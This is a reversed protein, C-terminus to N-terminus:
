DETSEETDDRFDDGREEVADDPAEANEQGDEDGESQTTSGGAGDSEGDDVDSGDTTGSDDGDSPRDPVQRGEGTGNAAVAPSGTGERYLPSRLSLDPYRWRLETLPWAVLGVLIVALALYQASGMWIPSVYFIGNLVWNPFVTELLDSVDPLLDALWDVVGGGGGSADARDGGTRSELGLSDASRGGASDEGTGLREVDYPHAIDVSWVVSGNPAIELLRSGHTDTALTNGNPLRDADRPWQVRSDYWEWSQEWEGNERQYEVLRSNESDAVVVAPGGREEPIYDPNHQEYLTDHDGDTGLTWNEQLGTEPDIFVVSDQNRLSVM